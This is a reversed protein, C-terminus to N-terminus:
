RPTTSRGSSSTASAARTPGNAATSRRARARAWDSTALTRFEELETMQKDRPVIVVRVTKMMREAVDKDGYQISLIRCAEARAKPAHKAILSLNACLHAFRPASCLGKLKTVWAADAALENLRQETLKAVAAKFDAAADPAAKELEQEPTLAAPAATPTDDRAILARVAQNGATRQLALVREAPTQAPGPQPPRRQEEPVEPERASDFM